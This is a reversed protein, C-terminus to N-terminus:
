SQKMFLCVYLNYVRSVNDADGTVGVCAAKQVCFGGGHGGVCGTGGHCAGAKSVQQPWDCGCM